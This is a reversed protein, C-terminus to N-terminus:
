ARRQQWWAYTEALGDELSFAPVFGICDRLRRIDAVLRPIENAPSPRAGLAILDNRGAARGLITAVDRIATAVGSGINFVGCWDSALAAVLAGAVDAVHLFDREQVGASCAVPRGAALGAAIDSVLRDPAEAPGYLWFVRGWAAQIGHEQAAALSLRRLSDKAVGYLTAPRLPSEENLCPDQSWDYEACTGATVIRRGGADQFARQLLLSAATWDLNDPATWFVGPTANWALHLLHTPQERAILARMEGSDLLDIAVPRIGAPLDPAPIRSAAIIEWDGTAHMQQCVNRGIFGSAGTVLVKV